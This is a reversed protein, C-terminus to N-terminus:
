LNQHEEAREENVVLEDHVIISRMIDKREAVTITMHNGTKVQRCPECHEVEVVKKSFM